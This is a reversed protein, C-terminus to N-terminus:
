SADSSSAYTFLHVSSIETGDQYKYKRMDISYLRIELKYVGISSVSQSSVWVNMGKWFTVLPVSAAIPAMQISASGMNVFMLNKASM